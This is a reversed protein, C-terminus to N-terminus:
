EQTKIKFKIKILTVINVIIDIGLMVIPIATFWDFSDGRLKIVCSLTVINLLELVVNIYAEAAKGCFTNGFMYFLLWSITIFAGFWVLVTVM